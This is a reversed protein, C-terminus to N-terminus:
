NGDPPPSVSRPVSSHQAMYQRFHKNCIIVDDDTFSQHTGKQCIHEYLNGHYVRVVLPSYGDMRPNRGIFCPDDSQCLRCRNSAMKITRKGACLRFSGIM